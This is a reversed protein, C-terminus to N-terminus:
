SKPTNTPTNPPAPSFFPEPKKQTEEPISSAHQEGEEKKADPSGPVLLNKSNDDQQGSQFLRPSHVSTEADQQAAVRSESEEQDDSKVDGPVYTIDLLKAQFQVCASRVQDVLDKREVYLARMFDPIKYYIDSMHNACLYSLFMIGGANNLNFYTEPTKNLYKIINDKMIDLEHIEPRMGQEIFEVFMTRLFDKVDEPKSLPIFSKVLDDANARMLSVKKDEMNTQLMEFLMNGMKEVKVFFAKDDPDVIFATNPDVFVFGIGTRQNLTVAISSNSNGASNKKPLKTERNLPLVNNSLGVDLRKKLISQYTNWTECYFKYEVENKFYKQGFYNIADILLKEKGFYGTFFDVFDNGDGFLAKRHVRHLVLFANNGTQNTFSFRRAHM